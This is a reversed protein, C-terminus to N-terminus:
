FGIESYSKKIKINNIVEKIYDITNEPLCDINHWSLESCKHPEKNKIEGSWKKVLFFVDIRENDINSGSDRQCIHVVELDEKKVKIGAEEYSERIICQTFTENSEVHGAVFSYQGDQYGTNFRKSLLVENSKQLILYSAPIVSHRKKM